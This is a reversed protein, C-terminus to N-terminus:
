SHKKIEGIFKYFKKSSNSRKKLSSERSKKDIIFTKFITEELAISKADGLMLVFDHMKKNQRQIWSLIHMGNYGSRRMCYYAWKNLESKISIPLRLIFMMKELPIFETPILKTKVYAMKNSRLIETSLIALLHGEHEIYKSIIQSSLIIKGNPLSFYFPTSHKIIIIEYSLKKKLVLSNNNSLNLIVEGLYKKSKKSIKITGKQSSNIFVNGIWNLQDSYDENKWETKASINQENDGLLFACSQLLFIIM